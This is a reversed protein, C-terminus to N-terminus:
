VEIKVLKAKNRIHVGWALVWETNSEDLAQLEDSDVFEIM